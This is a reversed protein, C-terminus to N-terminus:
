FRFRVGGHVLRPSGIQRIGGGHDVTYERDALNEGAIFVEGNGIPLQRALTANLIVYSGQRDMHEQDEFQEDIFRGEFRATLIKPNRYEVAMTATHPPIQALQFGTVSPEHPASVLTSDNFLYSGSLDLGPIVEYRAEVEAGFTRAVGENVRQRAISNGMTDFAVDVNVIPDDVEAWFGTARLDVNELVPLDLGAEAGTLHEPSLNSNPLFQLGEVFSQRYLEALTPARFARYVAARLHLWDTARYLVSLRPDFATRTKSEFKLDVPMTLGTTPDVQMGNQTGDYNTWLDVRGSLAIEWQPTPTYIGQLFYGAFFQKGDNRLQGTPLGTDPDFIRDRSQGDIWHSDVGSTILLPELLRRSWVLSSGVDTFPISQLLSRHELTRTDDTAESFQIHFSQLNSFIMGQWESGDDTRVTGSLDLAGANTGATRLATGYNYAQDFYQGHLAISATDSLQYGARLNLVEDRSSADKDIPGRQDRAVVPFGDLNFFNGEFGVTLKDKRGTVALYDDTLGDTGYSAKLAAGTETPKRTIINIVGAMAYNGWLSAGSGRVIEIHDISEQPVKGWFVQGDFGGIIPVGDVMVLARSAGAPGIGRLTVGQAETDLDPPTVISSSRRYLSFGPITHLIDDVSVDASTQVDDHDLVTASAATQDESLGTRTATVVVPELRVEHKAADEQARAVAVLAASLGVAMVFSRSVTMWRSGSSLRARM